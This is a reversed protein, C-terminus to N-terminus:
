AQNGATGREQPRVWPDEARWWPDVNDADATDDENDSEGIEFYLTKSAAGNDSNAGEPPAQEAPDPM